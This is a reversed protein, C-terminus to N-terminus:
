EKNKKEAELKAMFREDKLGKIHVDLIDYADEYEEEVVACFVDHITEDMIGNAHIYYQTLRKFIPQKRPSTICLHKGDVEEMLKQLYHLAKELDKIGDKNGYRTLYKTICATLYDLSLDKVYDWHQYGSDKYHSGGVQRDNASM